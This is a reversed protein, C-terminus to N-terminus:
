DFIDRSMSLPRLIARKVYIKGQKKCTIRTEHPFGRCMFRGFTCLRKYKEKTSCFTSRVWPSLDNQGAPIDGDGSALACAAKDDVVMVFTVFRQGSHRM